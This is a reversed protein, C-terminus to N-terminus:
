TGGTVTTGPTEGSGSVSPGPFEIARCRRWRRIPQGAPRSVRQGHSVTV